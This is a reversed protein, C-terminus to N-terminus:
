THARLVEGELIGNIMRTERTWAAQRKQLASRGRPTLRYVRRRRGGVITEASVLLGERELRYLAPYVTGEPVDLEGGSSTRMREILAYGHAPTRLLALIVLELPAQTEM